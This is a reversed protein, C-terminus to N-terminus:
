GKGRKAQESSCVEPPPLLKGSQDENPDLLAYAWSDRHRLFGDIRQEREGMEKRRQVLDKSMQGHLEEQRNLSNMSYNGVRMSQMIGGLLAFTLILGVFVGNAAYIPKPPLEDNRRYWKEWDEWTANRFPSNPNGWDRNDYKWSAPRPQDRFGTVHSIDEWGAGTSDYLSRRVPDALIDHAAVVLRYREVMTAHSLKTSSGHEHRDPHYFKVLEYFEQKSYTCGPKQRLIQYPTPLRNSALPVPWQLADPADQQYVGDDSLTAYSRARPSFSAPSATLHSMCTPLAFISKKLMVMARPSSRRCARTRVPLLIYWPWRSSQSAFSPVVRPTCKANTRDSSYNRRHRGGAALM